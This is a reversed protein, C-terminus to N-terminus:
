SYHSSNLRTSKRDLRSSCLVIGDVRKEELSGLVDLEREPDEDTNCLFVNYGRGYAVQEVGRALEAFFPNAVDPIVLGLTGTKRTALGRAIGSPRYGLREVADLVRQRTAASVDGKDNIVRSVTMMSVGVERAVDAM